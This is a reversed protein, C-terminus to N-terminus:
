TFYIEFLNKCVEVQRLLYATKKDQREAQRKHYAEVERDM